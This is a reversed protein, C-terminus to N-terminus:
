GWQITAGWFVGGCIQKWRIVGLFDGRQCSGQHNLSSDVHNLSWFRGSITPFFLLHYKSWMKQMHHNRILHLILHILWIINVVCILNSSPQYLAYRYCNTPLRVKWQLLLKIIAMCSAYSHIMRVFGFQIFAKRCTLENLHTCYLLKFLYFYVSFTWYFKNFTAEKATVKQQLDKYYTNFTQM